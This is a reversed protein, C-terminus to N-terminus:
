GIADTSSHFSATAVNSSVEPTVKVTTRL